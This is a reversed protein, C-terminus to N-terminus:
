VSPLITLDIRLNLTLSLWEFDVLNYIWIIFSVHHSGRSVIDIESNYSKYSTIVQTRSPNTSSDSEIFTMNVTVRVPYFNSQVRVRKQDDAPKM